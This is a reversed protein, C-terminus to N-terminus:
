RLLENYCTLCYIGLVDSKKNHRRTIQVYDNTCYNCCKKCKLQLSM